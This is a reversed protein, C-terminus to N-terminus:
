RVETIRVRIVRFSPGHARQAARADARRDYFVNFFYQLNDNWVGWMDETRKVKKAMDAIREILTPGAGLPDSAPGNQTGLSAAVCLSNVM